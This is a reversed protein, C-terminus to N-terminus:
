TKFLMVGLSSIHACACASPHFSLYHPYPESKLIILFRNIDSLTAVFQADNGGSFLFFCHQKFSYIWFSMTFDVNWSTHDASYHVLRVSSDCFVTHEFLSLWFCMTVDVNWNTYEFSYHVVRTSSDCLM